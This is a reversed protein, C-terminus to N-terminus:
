KPHKHVILSLFVLFLVVALVSMGIMLGFSASSGKVQGRPRNKLQNQFLIAGVAAGPVLALCTWGIITKAPLTM